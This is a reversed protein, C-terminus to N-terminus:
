NIKATLDNCTDKEFDTASLKYTEAILIATPVLAALASLLIAGLDGGLTQTFYSVNMSYEIFIIVGGIIFSHCMETQLKKVGELGYIEVGHELYNSFGDKKLVNSGQIKRNCTFAKAFAFFAFVIMISALILFVPSFRLGSIRIWGAAEPFCMALTNSVGYALFPATFIGLAIEFISNIQLTFVKDRITQIKNTSLNNVYREIWQQYEKVVKEFDERYEFKNLEKSTEVSNHKFYGCALALTAATGVFFLSIMVAFVPMTQPEIYYLVNIVYIAIFFISSLVLMFKEGIRSTTSDEGSKNQLYLYAGQKLTLGVGYIIFMYVFILKLNTPMQIVSGADKLPLGTLYNSVGFSCVLSMLLLAIHLVIGGKTNMSLKSTLSNIEYSTEKNIAIRVQELEAKRKELKLMASANIGAGYLDQVDAETLNEEALVTSASTGIIKVTVFEDTGDIMIKCIKEVELTAPVQKGKFLFKDNNFQNIITCKNTKPDYKVAIMCDFDVDLKIDFGDKSCINVLEKDTYTKEGNKTTITFAM